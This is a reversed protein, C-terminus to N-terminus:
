GAPREFTQADILRGTVGCSAPGLLYVYLPALSEIAALKETEEAPYARKRLPSAVPGPVVTNVRVVGASELEDALIAAFGEIAIKSVGYAGWYARGRRASSDSTFVISAEETKQLLPLLVRSLLYPANLNVNIVRGWVRTDLGSVPGLFGFEAASHLLGHLLGYKEDITKALELYQAETAGELDFPYIAPTPAGTKAIEDYIRELGPITKDLLIVRAGEVACAKAAVRGLGGAAGTVLIVRQKLVGTNSDAM